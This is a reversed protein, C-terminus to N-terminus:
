RNILTKKNLFYICLKSITLAELIIILSMVPFIYKPSYVPGTMIAFSLILFITYYFYIRSDRFLFFLAVPACFLFFVSSILSFFLIKKYIKYEDHFIIQELWIILDRNNEYFSPHALSRVKKDLLISPSFLNLVGGKVWALVIKSKELSLLTEFALKKLENNKEFPDIKSEQKNSILRLNEYYKEKISENTFDLVGPVVWNAFHSGTQTTIAIKSYNIYNDVIRKSVPLLSIFMFLFFIKAYNLYKKDKNFHIVLIFILSLIIIPLAVVRM